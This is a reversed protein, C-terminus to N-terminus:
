VVIAVEPEMAELAAISPPVYEQRDQLENKKHQAWNQTPRYYGVIRSYVLCKVVREGEVPVRQAIV